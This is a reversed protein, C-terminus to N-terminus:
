AREARIERTKAGFEAVFSACVAGPVSLQFRFILAPERCCFSFTVKLKEFSM